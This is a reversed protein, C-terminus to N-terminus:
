LGQGLAMKFTSKFYNPINQPDNQKNKCHDFFETPFLQVLKFYYDHIVEYISKLFQQSTNAINEIELNMTKHYEM